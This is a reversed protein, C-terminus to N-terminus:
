PLYVKCALLILTPELSHAVYFLANNQDDNAIALQALEYCVTANESDIRYLEGFLAEAKESEGRLKFNQAAFFNENFLRLREGKLKSQASLSLSFSILVLLFLSKNWFATIALLYKQSTAM